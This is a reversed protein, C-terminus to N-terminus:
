YPRTRRATKPPTRRVRVLTTNVVRYPDRGTRHCAVGQSLSRKKLVPRCLACKHGPRGQGSGYSFLVMYPILPDIKGDAPSPGNHRRRWADLSEPQLKGAPRNRTAPSLRQRSFVYTTLRWNRQPPLRFRCNFIRSRVWGEEFAMSSISGRRPLILLNAESIHGTGKKVPAGTFKSLPKDFLEM